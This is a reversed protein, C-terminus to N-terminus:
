DLVNMEGHQNSTAPQENSTRIYRISIGLSDVGGQTKHTGVAARGPTSAPTSAPPALTSDRGLLSLLFLCVGMLIFHWTDM